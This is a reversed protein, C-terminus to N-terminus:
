ALWFTLCVYETRIILFPWAVVSAVFTGVGGTFM